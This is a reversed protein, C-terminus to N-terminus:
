NKIIDRLIDGEEGDPSWFHVYDSNENTSFSWGEFDTSGWVPNFENNNWMEEQWLLSDELNNKDWIRKAREEIKKSAVKM